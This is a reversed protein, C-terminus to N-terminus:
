ALNKTQGDILINEAFAQADMPKGLLFGQLVDCRLLHLLRAQDETEVGEAVVSLGLAHALSIITSSLTMKKPSETLVAIFSRDIKIGDIPLQILYNLSSYGTGFDDIDVRCGLNRLQQLVEASQEVDEVLVSETLEIDIPQDAAFPELLEAAKALFDRHRFEQASVNVAVRMGPCLTRRWHLTTALAQAMVWRGVPVILGTDELLPIFEAPSVLRHDPRRWRLLAEAGTLRRTSACFKPQYHLEFEERDLAHRLERELDITRAVRRQVDQDFPVLRQGHKFATSLAAHADKEVSEREHAQGVAIGARFTVHVEQGDLEAGAEELCSLQADLQAAEQELTGGPNWSMLFLPGGVHAVFVGDRGLQSGMRSFVREAFAHGRASAIHATKNVEVAAVAVRQDPALESLYCALAHRNPLGSVPHHLSLYRLREEKKLDETLDHSVGRFGSLTGDDDFLPAGMSELTKLHGDNHRWQLRCGQFTGARRLGRALRRKLEDRSSDSLLASIDHGILAIPKYGLTAEMTRNSYILRLSTDIEWVWDRSADAYVQFRQISATVKRKLDDERDLRDRNSRMARGLTWALRKLNDTAVYDSAGEDFATVADDYDFEAGVVVIPVGAGERAVLTLCSRRDGIDSLQDFVVAEPQLGFLKERLEENSSVIAVDFKVQRGILFHKIARGREPRAVVVVRFDTSTARM